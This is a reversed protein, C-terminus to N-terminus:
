ALCKKWRGVPEPAVCEAEIGTYVRQELDSLKLVRTYECLKQDALAPSLTAFQPDWLRAQALDACIKKRVRAKLEADDTENAAVVGRFFIAKIAACASSTMIINRVEFVSIGCVWKCFGCEFVWVCVRM